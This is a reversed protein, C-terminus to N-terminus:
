QEKFEKPKKRVYKNIGIKESQMFKTYFTRKYPNKYKLLLKLDKFNDPLGKIQTRNKGECEEFMKYTGKLVIQENGKIPNNKDLKDLTSFSLQHNPITLESYYATINSNNTIKIMIKWTLEFVYIAKDGEIYGKSTDNNPSLGRPGSSGGDPILEITLEPGRFYVKRIYPILALGVAVILGAIGIIINITEM